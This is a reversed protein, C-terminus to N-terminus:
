LSCLLLRERLLEPWKAKPRTKHGSIAIILYIYIHKRTWLEKGETSNTHVLSFKTREKCSHNGQRLSGILFHGQNVFTNSLKSILWYIQNQSWTLHDLRFIFWFQYRSVVEQELEPIQRCVGGFRIPLLLSLASCYVECWRANNGLAPPHPLFSCFVMSGPPLHLRSYVVVSSLM